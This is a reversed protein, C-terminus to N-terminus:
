RPDDRAVRPVRRRSTVLWGLVGVAMALEHGATTGCGGSQGPPPPPPETIQIGVETTITNRTLGTVVLTYDGPDVIAVLGEADDVLEIADAVLGGIPILAAALHLAGPDVVVRRAGGRIAIPVYRASLGEVFITGSEAIAPERPAAPWSITAPYGGGTTPSGAFANWRTFTTFAADLDAGRTALVADIADLFPAAEGVQWAAVLTDAGYARELFYPWLAAGYPYADFGTAVREFPRFTKGLFAPLFREFDSNTGGYLHEVAWVATGEVWSTSHGTAYANQILHFLEHPMVSRIAEGLSPYSFGAFDNEATIYGICRDGTCSDVGANGDAAVLDRLYIDIRNDGGLTGDDLPRRFGLAMLRALADEEVAAVEAVFDPVGDGDADAPAVADPGTTAYHVLVSGGTAGYRQAGALIPREAHAPAGRLVTLLVVLRSWIRTTM